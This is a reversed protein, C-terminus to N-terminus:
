SPVLGPIQAHTGLAHDRRSRRRNGNLARPIRSSSPPGPLRPGTAPPHSRARQSAPGAPLPHLSRPASAKPGHQTLPLRPCPRPGLAHASPARAASRAPAFCAPTSRSARTRAPGFQAPEIAPGRPSLSFPSPQASSFPNPEPFLFQGHATNQAPNLEQAKPQNPSPKLNPTQKEIEIRNAIKFVM